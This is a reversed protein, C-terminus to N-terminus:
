ADQLSARAPDIREGAKLAGAMIIGIGGLELLWNLRFDAVRSHLFEDVHHFSAARIVVFSTVVFIGLLPLRLDSGHDQMLRRVAAFGLFGGSAVALIFWFQFTRRREYWGESRALNRGTMTLWTQLDLQKNIGLLLMMVVLIGWFRRRLSGREEHWMQRVCLVAAVFYAVVTLWGVFTPDGIGPRWETGIALAVIPTM